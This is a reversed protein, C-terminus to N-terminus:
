FVKKCEVASLEVSVRARLMKVRDYKIDIDTGTIKLHLIYQPQITPDDFSLRGSDIMHLM